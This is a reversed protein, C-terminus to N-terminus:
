PVDAQSLDSGDTLGMHMMFFKQVQLQEREVAHRVEWVTQPYFYAESADKQFADSGYLLQHAPFYVIMQRETTEGRVPYLEMRNPGEGIVTKSSVARFEPARSSKALLDPFFTRPAAILRQLIALNHDLVYVPIGRAVYERVGGIHPWADSTSIVAKIPVGPWRKEADAIAQASYGSSIPAELVVIGDSQRVLTTNWAGPIFIVDKAIELPPQNPLGLPREDVTKNGRKAFAARVDAPIAFDADAIQPNLALTSSSITLVADPLNNRFTDWQLPYHVKGPCLWWLSYYVRTTVDGWVSWFFSYPYARKWEVATPLSTDANLFVRIAAGKWTFAVVHHLVAQLMADAERHLDAAALATFLIHEPGLELTEEAQQLQDPSAPAENGDFRLDAGADSVVVRSTLEPGIQVRAHTERSWREHGLDREESIRDYEVIYPGEPRESEELLNRYGMAQFRVTRLDRLKQEGGMQRLSERLLAEATAAGSPAQAQLLYPFFIFIFFINIKRLTLKERTMKPLHEALKLLKFLRISSNRCSM